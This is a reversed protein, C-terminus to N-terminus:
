CSIPICQGDCQYVCHVANVCTISWLADPDTCQGSSGGAVCHADLLSQSQIVYGGYCGPPLGSGVICWNNHYEYTGTTSLAISMLDSQGNYPVCCVAPDNILGNCNEDISNGCIETAGPYVGMNSDDCDSSNAVYGTPATSCAQITMAGNGYGDADADGFFTSCIGSQCENAATCVQGDPKKTTCIGGVCYHGAACSSDDACMTLCS